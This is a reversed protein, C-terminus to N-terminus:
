LKKVNSESAVITSIYCEKVLPKDEDRHLWGGRDVGLYIVLTREVDGERQFIHIVIGKLPKDLGPLIEVAQGEEIM